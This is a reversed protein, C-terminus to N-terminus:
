DAFKRALQLKSKFTELDYDGFIMTRRLLYPQSYFPNGGPTVTAGLAYNDKALLTLIQDNTDGFPYAYITVPEKLHKQFLQAPVRVEADLNQRYRAENEGPLRDALNRHTKSHSGIELSESASMEQIQPWTLASSAGVYDTYVFFTAPYGYQKLLPVAYQYASEHGDDVTIVVAREPLAEKGALFGLLQRMPIVRYDNKKLWELQAAFNAASVIMKSKGPGFRHYCLIPVTRYEGPSVGIPNVPKLPVALVKGAEVHDVDNFDAIVWYRDVSGLFRAAISALTDDAGPEYLVFRENSAVVKGTASPRISTTTTPSSACGALGLAGALCLATALRRWATAAGDRM